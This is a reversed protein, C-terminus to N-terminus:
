FGIDTHNADHGCLSPIVIGFSWVTLRTYVALVPCVCGRTYVVLVVVSLCSFKKITTALYPRRRYLNAPIGIRMPTNADDASV